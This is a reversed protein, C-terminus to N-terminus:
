LKLMEGVLSLPIDQIGKGRELITMQWPGSRVTKNEELM